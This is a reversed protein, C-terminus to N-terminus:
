SRRLLFYAIPRAGTRVEVKATVTRGRRHAEIIRDRIHDPVPDLAITAEYTRKLTAARLQSSKAPAPSTATLRVVFRPDDVAGIRVDAGAATVSRGVLRAKLEKEVLARVDQPLEAIQAQLVPKGVVVKGMLRFEISPDFPSTEDKAAATSLGAEIEVGDVSDIALPIDERAVVARGRLAGQLLEKLEPGVLTRSLAAATSAGSLQARLLTEDESLFRVNTLRSMLGVRARQVTKGALKPRVILRSYDRIAALPAEGEIPGPSLGERLHAVGSAPAKIATPKGPSWQSRAATLKSRASPDSTAQLARDISALVAASASASETDFVEFLPEGQEVSQGEAVLITALFAGSKAAVTTEHAEIPVDEAAIWDDVEYVFSFAFAGVILAVVVYGTRELWGMYRAYFWRKKRNSTRWEPRFIPNIM